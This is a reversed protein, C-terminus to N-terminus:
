LSKVLAGRGSKRRKDRSEGEYVNAPKKLSPTHYTRILDQSLHSLLLPAPMSLVARSIMKRKKMRMKKTMTTPAKRKMSMLNTKSREEIPEKTNDNEPAHRLSVRSMNVEKM